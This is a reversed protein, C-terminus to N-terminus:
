AHIVTFKTLYYPALTAMAAALDVTGPTFTAALWGDIAAARAQSKAALGGLLTQHAPVGARGALTQLARAATEEITRAHTLVATRDSVDVVTGLRFLVADTIRGTPIQNNHLDDRAAETDTYAQTILASEAVLVGPYFRGVLRTFFDAELQLLAYAYNLVGVETGLDLTVSGSPAVSESCASVFRGLVGVGAVSAGLMAGRRLLQRRTLGDIEGRNSRQWM